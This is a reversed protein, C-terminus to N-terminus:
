ARRASYWGTRPNPPIGGPDALRNQLEIHRFQYVAGVQRLVGIQHCTALFGMLDHPLQRRLALWYRALTCSPWPTRLLAVLFAFCLGTTVGVALGNGWTLGIGLVFGVGLGAALAVLLASQRDRRLTAAPSAADGPRAAGELVAALGISVGGAVGCSSGYGLGYQLGVALGMALGAAVGAALRPWTVHWRLGHAPGPATRRAAAFAIGLGAAAAAALAPPLGAVLAANTGHTIGSSLGYGLGLTLASGLAAAAVAGPASVVAARLWGPVRRPRSSHPPTSQRWTAFLVGIAIGCTLGAAPGVVIGALVPGVAPGASLAAALGAGVAVALGAALGFWTSPVAQGLQWWALDPTHLRDLHRALCKLWREAQGTDWRRHPEGNDARRATDAAVLAPILSDLLQDRIALSSPFAAANTLEAPNRRDAAPANIYVERALSLMLPSALASALPTNDPGDRLCNLVPQWAVTQGPPVWGHLCAAAARPTIPEAEIVAAAHLVGGGSVAATYDATRCTLILGLEGDGLAQNLAAIVTPQVATPIEDLGDLVPLIRRQAVLAAAVGHGYADTALWPQDQRLKGALWSNLTDRGPNFSALSFLVPVPAFQDDAVLELLLLSALTTKGMGPEGIIVLRRAPLDIFRKALGAVQDTSGSFELTQAPTINASQDAVPPGTLRWTVPAPRPAYLHSRGAEGRWQESIKGRLIQCVHDLLEPGPAAQRSRAQAGKVISAALPILALVTAIAAIGTLGAKWYALGLALGILALALLAGVWPWRIRM